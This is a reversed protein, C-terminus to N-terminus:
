IFAMTKDSNQWQRSDTCLHFWQLIIMSSFISHSCNNFYWEMNSYYQSQTVHTKYCGLNGLWFIIYKKLHNPRDHGFSYLQFGIKQYGGTRIDLHWCNISCPTPYGESYQPSIWPHFLMFCFTHWKDVFNTYIKEINIYMYEFQIGTSKCSRYM